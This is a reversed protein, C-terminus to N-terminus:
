AEILFAKYGNVTEFIDVKSAVEWPAHMNHLAVGCDIVEMNYQALIYAITGGGGADVKGLEATQISVNHKEMINRLEAMYEASADNSGSKGRAGTYKNFVMGKGFFASNKKEMVSPYNPDFAASVDSSLMKSNTLCRRLKLDSYGEIRDIIEAVINEFFRSHMGTAGISGVEEKDVLLCCCTKDPEKIEFMAMLSTYSCVRDDHGYAMVMSRDLGYDRAKGAPVIEIEASLFDEEEFDYKEKLLKLINGKVADKKSGKLPMSGVLVNLDEGEVVKDAKKGMQDGALHILLDSVGVVPDNDDEGICIDIVTGDKKAVVGHLALPLTVWQYKKIGGYYHTDLLALESDEYLPNQKLDLRPSDIHAGLIKLGNEISESGVIFLAVAKGKNNAFVKDGPKLQKNNKIIEEIDEYGEAKALRLVEKVCERETKCKSMFNKYGECFEFISQVEKEDYKNWANKSLDKKENEM